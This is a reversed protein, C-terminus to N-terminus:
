ELTAAMATTITTATLKISRNLWVIRARSSYCGSGKGKLPSPAPIPHPRKRKLGGVSDGEGGPGEGRLPSPLLTANDGGSPVARM